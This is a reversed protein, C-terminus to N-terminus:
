VLCRDLLQDRHLGSPWRCRADVPGWAWAAVDQNM